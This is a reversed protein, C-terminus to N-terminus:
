FECVSYYKGDRFYFEVEGFEWFERDKHILLYVTQKEVPDTLKKDTNRWVQVVKDADDLLKQSWRIDNSTGPKYENVSLTKKIHHILIISIPYANTLMKLRRSIDAFRELEDTWWTFFGLNDLFFLAVWMSHLEIIDKEVIDITTEDDVSVIKLHKIGGIEKYYKTFVEKKEDTIDKDSRELKNIMAQQRATRKVLDEAKMELTIYATENGILANAIAMHFCFETKGMWSKGVCLILNGTHFRGLNEDLKDVWRTFRYREWFDIDRPSFINLGKSIRKKEYNKMIFRCADERSLDELHMVLTVFTYYSWSSPKKLYPSDETIILKNVKEHLFFAKNDPNNWGGFNRGDPQLYLGTKKCIYSIFEKRMNKYIRKESDSYTEYEKDTDIMPISLEWLYKDYSQLYDCKNDQEYLVEVLVPGLEPFKKRQNYSGPIRMLRSINKNSKDTLCFSLEETTKIIERDFLEYFKQVINAYVDPIIAIYDWIYHVHLGNGSFVIWSRQKFLPHEDIKQKLVMAMSRIDEDSLEKPSAKRLDLDLYIRNTEKIDWDTISNNQLKETWVLEPNIWVRFYLDKDPNEKLIIDINDITWFVRNVTGISIASRESNFRDIRM